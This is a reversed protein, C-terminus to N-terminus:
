VGGEGGINEELKAEHKVLFGEGGVNEVLKIDLESKTLNLLSRFTHSYMPATTAQM